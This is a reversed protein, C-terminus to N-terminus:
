GNLSFARIFIKTSQERAVLHFSFIRIRYILRRCEYSFNQKSERIPHETFPFLSSPYFFDSVSKNGLPLLLKKCFYLLKDYIPSLFFFYHGNASIPVMLIGQSQQTQRLISQSQQTWTDKEGFGTKKVACYMKTIFPIRVRPREQPGEIM